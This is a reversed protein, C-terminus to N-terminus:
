KIYFIFQFQSNYVIYFRGKQLDDNILIESKVNSINKISIDLNSISVLDESYNPTWTPPNGGICYDTNTTLNWVCLQYVKACNILESVHYNSLNNCVNSGSLIIKKNEKSIAICNNLNPIFYDRLLNADSAGGVCRGFRGLIKSAQKMYVFQNGQKFYAGDFEIQNKIVKNTYNEIVKIQELEGNRLEKQRKNEEDKLLKINNNYTKLRDKEADKQQKLIELELKVKAISDQSIKQKVLLIEEDREKGEAIIIGYINWCGNSCDGEILDIKKANPDLPKFVLTFHKTEGSYITSQVSTSRTSSVLSFTKQTYIIGSYFDKLYHASNGDNPAFNFLYTSNSNNKFELEVTTKNKGINISSIKLGDVSSKEFYPNLIEKANGREFIFLVCLLFYIKTM